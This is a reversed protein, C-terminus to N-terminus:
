HAGDSTIVAVPPTKITIMGSAALDKVIGTWKGQAKLIIEVAERLVGNGGSAKTVYHAAAAAERVANKPSIALGVRTMVALDILDDGIYAIKDLSIKERKTIDKLPELKNLFGQYIYKFGLVDARYVTTAHANGTIIAINLGAKVAIRAGIGDTANFSKFEEIKGKHDPFFNLKGDTLVGDVDTIIFKIKKAKETVSNM